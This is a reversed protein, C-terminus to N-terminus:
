RGSPASSPSAPTLEELQQVHAELHRVLVEELASRISKSRTDTATRHEVVRSLDSGEVERLMTLLGDIGGRVRARLEEETRAPGSDIAAQRVEYGDDDRGIRAAGAAAKRIEGTWFPLIEAMHGMVHLRNWREGTEPNPPGPEGPGIEPLGDFRRRAEVLRDRLGALDDDSLQQRFFGITRTWAECAAEYGPNGPELGSASMFGHGLGPYITHEFEVGRDHLAQALREVNDMGVGQDQDGWFGLIPGSIKDVVELPAPATQPRANPLRAPFGYFCATALDDRRAALDLVQTGGMCFGVTGVRDAGTERELWDIARLLDEQTQNEDLGARRAMAAERTREPLPGQRFFIEPVLATFGATALRAALNEYFPSRGFIDAVVLVPAGTGGDPTALLAPM